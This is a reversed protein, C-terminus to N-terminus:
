RGSPRESEADAWSGHERRAWWLPVRGTRMGLRATPDKGAEYLHGVVVVFVAFAVWDHVFTAGTRWSLPWSDPWNMIVGTMLMVLVFGLTFAGNLKQGANFKGVPLRGSRRDSSRLWQWDSPSFRNLRRMDRRLAGSWLWGVVIPVPLLLGAVVHVQAVLHRRGVLQALPAVYLLSATVLLVGVLVALLWHVWREGRSFRLLTLARASDDDTGDAADPRPPM